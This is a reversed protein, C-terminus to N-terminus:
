MKLCSAGEDCFGETQRVIAVISQELIEVCQLL